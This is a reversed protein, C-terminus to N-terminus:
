GPSLPDPAEVTGSHSPSGATREPLALERDVGPLSSLTFSVRGSRAAPITAPVKPRLIPRPIATASAADLEGDDDVGEVCGAVLAGFAAGLPGIFPPHGLM